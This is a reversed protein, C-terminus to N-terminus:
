EAGDKLNPWGVEAPTNILRKNLGRTAIHGIQKGYKGFQNLGKLGQM